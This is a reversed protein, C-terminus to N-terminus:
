RIGTDIHINMRVEREAEINITAPVDKSFAMGSLSGLTVQYTGPTLAIRFYGEDNTVASAFQKGNLARVVVKIHPVPSPADVVNPLIVPSMPGKTVRGSLIGMPQQVQDNEGIVKLCPLCWFGLCVAYWFFPRQARKRLAGVQRNPEWFRV